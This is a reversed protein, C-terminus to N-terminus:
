WRSTIEAYLQEDIAGQSLALELLYTELGRGEDVVFSREDGDLAIIGNHVALRAPLGAIRGSNEISIGRYGLVPALVSDGPPAASAPARLIRARVEDAHEGDPLQYHPDPRGSFVSITVELEGPPLPRVGSVTSSPACSCLLMLVSCALLTHRLLTHRLSTSAKM